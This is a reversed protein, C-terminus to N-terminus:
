NRLEAAKEKLVVDLPQLRVLFQAPASTAQRTVGRTTTTAFRHAFTTVDAATPGRTQPMALFSFDYGSAKCDQSEPLAAAVIAIQERGTTTVNVAIGDVLAESRKAASRTALLTSEGRRSPWLLAVNNESDLYLATVCLDGESTNELALDICDGDTVVPPSTLAVAMAKSMPEKCQRRRLEVKLQEGGSGLTSQQAFRSLNYAKYLRPLMENVRDTLAAESLAPLAISPSQFTGDRDPQGGRPVFWLRDNQVFLQIDATENWALWEFDGARKTAEQKKMRNLVGRAMREQETEPRKSSDESPPMALKLSLPVVPTSIRATMGALNKPPLAPLVNDKETFAIPEIASELPGATRVRAFGQPREDERSVATPWLSLVTGEGVAHLAGAAIAPTDDSRRFVTWQLSPKKSSGSVARDLHSGAFVPTVPYHTGQPRLIEQAVQNFSASPNREIAQFLKVTFLGYAKRQENSAGYAKHQENHNEFDQDFELAQQDPRSAFFAVWGGSGTADALKMWPREYSGRTRTGAGQAEASMLEPQPIGLAAPPMFRPRVTPSRLGYGAHCSDIVVWVFAGAKQLDEVIQRLEKNVIANKVTRQESGWKGVDSPLFIADFGDLSRHPVDKPDAPQRSGHGAFYLFVEDDGASERVRATLRELEGLISARTPLAKSGEVGDALVVISQPEYALTHTLLHKMLAVDNQPGKLDYETGNLYDSVGILIAHRTAAHASVNFTSCIAYMMACFYLRRM